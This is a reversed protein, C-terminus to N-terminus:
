LQALRKVWPECIEWIIHAFGWVRLWDEKPDLQSAEALLSIVSRQQGFPTNCGSIHVRGLETFSIMWLQSDIAQAQYGLAMAKISVTEAEQRKLKTQMEITEARQIANALEGHQTALISTGKQKLEILRRTETAARAAETAARAAAAQTRASAVDADRFATEALERAESVQERLVFGLAWWWAWQFSAQLRADRMTGPEPHSFWWVLCGFLCMVRKGLDTATADDYITRAADSDWDRPNPTLDRCVTWLECGARVWCERPDEREALMDALALQPTLEDPNAAFCAELMNVLDADANIWQPLFETM